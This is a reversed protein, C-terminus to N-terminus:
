FELNLEAEFVCVVVESEFPRNEPFFERPLGGSALFAELAETATLRTCCHESVQSFRNTKV